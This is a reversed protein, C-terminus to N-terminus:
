EMDEKIEILKADWAISWKFDENSIGHSHM